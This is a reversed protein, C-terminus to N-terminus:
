LLTEFFRRFFIFLAADYTTKHADRDVRCSPRRCQHNKKGGEAAMLTSGERAEGGQEAFGLKKLGLIKLVCHKEFGWFEKGEKGGERGGGGARRVRM